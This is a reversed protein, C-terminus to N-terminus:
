QSQVVDPAAGVPPLLAAGHLHRAREPERRAEEESGLVAVDDRM